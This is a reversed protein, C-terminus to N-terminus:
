EPAAAKAKAPAARSAPTSGRGPAPARADPGRAPPRRPKSEPPTVVLDLMHSWVAAASGRDNRDFALQGQERLMALLWLRDDQRRAAELARAAFRAAYAQVATSSTHSRCARAVLWLPIQAAAQARERANARAGAPLPDLPTKEVLQALQELTAQIRGADHSALAELAACTAVSLDDPHARRLSELAPVLGAPETANGADFSDAVLSRVSAMDLNRPHVITMLDILQRGRDVTSGTSAAAPQTTTAEHSAEAIARGAVAALEDARVSEIAANLHEAILRPTEPLRPFISSSVSVDVRASLAQAECYLPVADAAFGLEVLSTGIADLGLMRYLNAAEENLLSSPSRTRSLELLSRRAENRRGTQMALSVLQRAPMQETAQQFRFQFLANPDSLAAQYATFALDRTARYKELELGLTWYVMLRANSVPEADEKRLAAIVRSTLARARDYQGARCRILAELADATKWAPTKKRADEVKELLLGLSSREEALDLVQLALPIKANSARAQTNAAVPSQWAFPGYDVLQLATAASPLIAECVYDFSEPMRWIDDRSTTRVLYLRDEPFAAWAKRFLTQAQQSTKSDTPAFSLLRSIYTDPVLSLAKIDVGNMFEVLQATKGARDFLTLMQYFSAAALDPNKEFVAKYHSLARVPDGGSALDVALRLRLAADDPKLELMRAMERAAQDPQRAATFYDALTQHIVISGQTNKLQERTREILQPLRGSAALVRMAAPRATDPDLSSRSAAVLSNHSARLIQMAIQAAQELKGQRQFQTMLGVLASSQGGARRRARGLMAEALDHLGLQHMQGSLRIQTDTDLRLGFLREAAHRAREANGSAIAAAIALEERRKLSMNDMPQVADLLEIADAPSAQQMLLDALDLRLESEPRDAAVVKSLEAIADDKEDSWWLIASLALRPYVADGPTPASASQRRFHNVLDSSLDDRKFLEFASRLVQIVTGDFYENQQPYTIPVTIYRSGVLVRSRSLTGSSLWAALRARAARAAAGPSQQERKRKAAGLSFDVLKLVQSYDKRDACAGMGQCVALAPTFTYSRTGYTPTSRGTQLRDYRESLQILATVDGRQGALDFAGAIQGLLSAGQVTEHYFKELDATRGAWRLENAVNVIIEGQALEPRQARLEHFRALVRDLQRGDLPPHIEDAQRLQSQVSVAYRQGLPTDRPGLANLFAWLALPDHPAAESLKGAAEFAGAHDERIICLYFWNWIARLDGPTKRAAAVFGAVVTDQRSPQEKGALSVLWGLAVMRAQGFDAPSWSYGRPAPTTTLKCFYRILSVNGVRDELPMMAQRAALILPRAAGPAQLHPNRAQAKAFASKEDDGVPLDILKEFRAAAEKLRGLAELALGQRYLAEWDKPDARLSAETLELVPLPKGNLLLNDMAHFVRFSQSKGAAAKSWVAQAEELDGSKALLTALRAQGEDSPALEETMKQYRAASELDGEEEALKALQQLLRTDRTDTALLKELEARASGLDGSSAHAQAICMAVDRRRAEEGPRRDDREQHELRAFLRDLQSRQLYLETLKRVVELKHDLDDARDFARWYMEIAEETQYQGALTEALRLVVGSEAPNARVARRLADLGEEPRGLGFCLQAFFEYNEPNGPAAALLDRGAKLAPEIRGLRSELRAIATLHEIRNRRDIEALRRLAEAADGLSGASERLRAALAWASVSRPDIEVAKDAARVAEPLKADAELYRALVIWAPATPQPAAELEKRLAEIRQALRNAAQDNEVRADLVADKEEDKETLKDAAALQTEADDYKELRHNLSALKLRLDFGDPELAVAEVLPPLAEKLYGFGALVESLRALTKASRNPGDAIKAWAAKAEEPRKLNHLYEGIYEQYQPNTPALAAAKRYLELAPEILEAQKHLDAVQATTVPDNPKADLMKRWIAAAAARKEPQPKTTDRLVLAGWDKLTDPNNPEAQDLAEYEKAAEAFKQDQALQSILALRLDRRSPALKVAKDFWAHAEAARGMGALTRGLRVLAEVDDPTKKTWQEYYKVLGGQDDNRLFVDEIKRRVERHLWSDPRLKGLMVEFDHLADQSKGLRVKLDAAAMSLQVQRFPDTAKKSLAEFRPLATAPENEDALTQAIQEQVRTDGPFLTELRNWVQLAQDNKQTRQYVRGLAQFIDLLDTRAPKRALAREFAEAANEPQGILVLAQGLYFSPLADDPRHTEANKLATVAAADQGRQFELLGLILWAAGDDPKKDLRDAYSKIFADLTGREVHYGYVRDLPTGRRPNKELLSLFREMSQRERAELAAAPDNSQNAAAPRTEQPKAEPAGQSNAVPGPSIAFLLIGVILARVQWLYVSM